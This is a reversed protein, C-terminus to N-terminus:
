AGAANSAAHAQQMQGLIYAGTHKAWEMQALM